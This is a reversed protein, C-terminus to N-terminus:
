AGAWLSLNAASHGCLQIIQVSLDVCSLDKTSIVVSNKLSYFPIELMGQVINM